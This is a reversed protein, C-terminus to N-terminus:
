GYAGVGSEGGGGVRERGHFSRSCSNSSLPLSPLACFVTVSVNCVAIHACSFVM